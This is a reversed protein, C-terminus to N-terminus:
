RSTFLVIFSLLSNVNKKKKLMKWKQGSSRYKAELTKLVPLIHQLNQTTLLCTEKIFSIIEKLYMNAWLWLPQVKLTQKIQNTM